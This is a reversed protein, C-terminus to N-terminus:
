ASVKATEDGFPGHPEARGYPDAHIIVDAAPYANMIRQEAREMVHHAADLTQDPELEMHMQVHMFPGSQRTRFEHVGFVDPDDLALRLIEQRVPEAIERDMLHASGTRLVGWAGWVLWLAVLLGAAADLRTDGTLRAGVVGAVVALNSALDAAYHARDGSVAVSGTRAIVVNQAQILALTAAISVAMVALAWGEAGVAAPHLVRLVAERGIALASVLVLVAQVVSAYAEAKGHGFRHERDPPAVAYRVAWFTALAAVLDLASDATSALLAVSGGAWWGALKVLALASATGVSVATIRATLRAGEAPDVAQPTLNPAAASM